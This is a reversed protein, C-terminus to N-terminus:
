RVAGEPLELLELLEVLLTLSFGPPNSIANGFNFLRQLDGHLAAEAVGLRHAVGTDLAPGKIREPARPEVCHLLAGAQDKITELEVLEEILELGLGRSDDGRTVRIVCRGQGRM